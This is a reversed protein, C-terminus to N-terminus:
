PKSHLQKCVNVPSIYELYIWGFEYALQLANHRRAQYHRTNSFHHPPTPPPPRIHSYWLLIPDDSPKHRRTTLFTTILTDSSYTKNWARIEKTATGLCRFKFRKMRSCYIQVSKMTPHKTWSGEEESFLVVAQHWFYMFHTIVQPVSVTCLVSRYHWWSTVSMLQRWSLGFTLLCHEIDMQCKIVIRSSSFFFVVNM